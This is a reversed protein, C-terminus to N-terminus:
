KKNKKKILNQLYERNGEPILFFVAVVLGFVFTKILLDLIVHEIKLSNVGKLAIATVASGAIPLLFIELFKLFSKKLATKILMYYVVFFNIYFAVVLGYGVDILKEGYFVGYAIGSIMFVSSILGSKFLLNTKNTAQFIASTSSMCVQIGVSLALIKFMLVSMEWQSGFMILILQSATFYLFVSLPFGIGALLKLVGLYAKYIYGPDDQHKALVPHMVPTIVHTLNYVLLHMLSYSKSYYGLPANGLYKGILINDLNRSFYNIFNYAFQYSSYSAIRKLPSKQIRSVIKVPYLFYFISFSIFGTLVNQIILSFYSFGNLAMIIAIIGTAAQVSINVVGMQKFRLEKKNLAIPVISLINFFISLSLLRVVPVLQPEDYFEAIM